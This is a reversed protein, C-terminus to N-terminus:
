QLKYFLLLDEGYAFNFRGLRLEDQFHIDRLAEIKWLSALGAVSQFLYVDNSLSNNYSFSANKQIKIAWKDDKNFRPYAWNRVFGIIKQKCSMDQNKFTDAAICDGVNDILGQYLKEVGDPPLYVDDDL